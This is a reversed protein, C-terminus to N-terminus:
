GQSRDPDEVLRLFVDCVRYDIPKNVVGRRELTVLRKYERQDWKSAGPGPRPLHPRTVWTVRALATEGNRQGILKVKVIEDSEIEQHLAASRWHLVVTGRARLDAM